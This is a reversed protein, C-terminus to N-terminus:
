CRRAPARALALQEADVGLAGARGVAPEVAALGAHGPHRELGARHHDRARHDVGRHDLRAPRMIGFSRGRGPHAEALRQVEGAVLAHGAVPEDLPRHGVLDHVLQHLQGALLVDVLVGRLDLLRLALVRSRGPRHRSAAGSGALTGSLLADQTGAHAVEVVALEDLVSARDLQHRDADDVLVPALEVRHRGLEVRGPRDVPHAAVDQVLQGRRGVRGPARAVRM